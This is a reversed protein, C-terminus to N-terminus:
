EESIELNELVRNNFNEFIVKQEIEKKENETLENTTNQIKNVEIQEQLKKFLGNKNNEM